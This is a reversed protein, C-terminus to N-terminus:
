VPSIVPLAGNPSAQFHAISSCPVWGAALPSFTPSRTVWISSAIGSALPQSFFAVLVRGCRISWYLM